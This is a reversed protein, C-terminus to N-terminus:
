ATEEDELWQTLRDELAVMAEALTRPKDDEFILGGCDIARVIFGIGDRDGIEIHGYSQVWKAVSPFAAELQAPSPQDSFEKLEQEAVWARLAFEDKGIRMFRSSRGHQDIDKILTAQVDAETARWLRMEMVQSALWYSSQPEGQDNFIYECAELLSHM